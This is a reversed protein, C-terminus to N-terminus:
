GLRSLRGPRHGGAATPRPGTSHAADSRLGQARLLFAPSLLLCLRSFSRASAIRLLVALGLVLLLLAAFFFFLISIFTLLLPLARIATATTLSFFLLRTRLLVRRLPLCGFLSRLCNRLLLSLRLLFLRIHGFVSSGCLRARRSCRHAHRGRQQGHLQERPLLLFVARLSRSCCCALLRLVRLGRPVLWGLLGRRARCFGQADTAKAVDRLHLPAELVLAVFQSQPHDFRLLLPLFAM